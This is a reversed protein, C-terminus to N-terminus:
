PIIRSEPPGGRQAADRFAEFPRLAGAVKLGRATPARWLQPDQAFLSYSGSYDFGFAAAEYRDAAFLVQSVGAFHASMYCLACPEGSALLIAGVLHTRGHTRCADRIAEVEAHATPDHSERVRNVGRGLVAGNRDVVFASFPIGGHLVHDLSSAVVEEMLQAYPIETEASMM